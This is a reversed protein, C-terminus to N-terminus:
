KQAFGQDTLKLESLNLGYQNKFLNRVGQQYAPLKNDKIASQWGTQVVMTQLKLDEGVQAAHIRAKASGSILPAIQARLGQAMPVTISNGDQVNNVVMWGILMYSALADAADNERLGSNKILAKYLQAYDHQGPGFYTAIAQSAGPNSTKIRSAYSQVTQQRLAPTPTYATSSGAASRSTSTTPKRGASTTRKGEIVSSMTAENIAGNTIASINSNYIDMTLDPSTQARAAPATLLFITALLTASVLYRKM